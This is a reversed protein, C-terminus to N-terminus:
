HIKVQGYYGSEEENLGLASICEDCLSNIYIKNSEENVSIIDQREEPTLSSLGLKDEDLEDMEIESILDQCCECIYYLKM